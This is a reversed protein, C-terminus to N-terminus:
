AAPKARTAARRNYSVLASIRADLAPGTSKWTRALPRPTSVEQLVSLEESIGAFRQDLDLRAWDGAGAGDAEEPVQEALDRALQQDDPVAQGGMAAAADALKEAGPGGGPELDPAEGAVCRVQVGDLVEPMVELVDLQPIAAEEVEVEEPIREKAGNSAEAM